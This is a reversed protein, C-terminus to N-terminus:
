RFLYLHIFIQSLEGALIDMASWILIASNLVRTMVRGEAKNFFNLVSGDEELLSPPPKPSVECISYCLSERRRFVTSCTCM